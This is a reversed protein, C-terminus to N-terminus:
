GYFKIFRTKGSGKGKSQGSHRFPLRAPSLIRHYRYRTPEIGVEPVSGFDGENKPSKKKKHGQLQKTEQYIIDLM